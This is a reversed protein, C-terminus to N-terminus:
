TPSSCVQIKPILVHTFLAFCFKCFSFFGIRKALRVFRLVFTSSVFRFSVFRFSVFCFLVLFIYFVLLFIFLFLFLIYVFIFVFYLCFCFYFCFLYFCFIFVLIFVFIFVFILFMGPRLFTYTIGSAKIADEVRIHRKAAFSSPELDIAHSSLFVIQKVGATKAASVLESATNETGQMYMFVSDIENFLTPFTTPDEVDAKVVQVTPPFTHKTPYRTSVRINPPHPSSLSLLDHLVWKGVNGSAGIVLINLSSM